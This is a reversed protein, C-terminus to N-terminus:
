APQGAKRRRLRALVSDPLFARRVGVSITGVSRVLAGMITYKYATQGPDLFRVRGRAALQDVGDSRVRLQDDLPRTTAYPLAEGDPLRRRHFDMLTGLLPTVVFEVLFLRGLDNHSGEQSNVTELCRGDALRSLLWTSQQPIGAVTGGGVVALVLRDPSLWFDYRVRVLRGKGDGFSGLPAFGNQRFWTNARAADATLPPTVPRTATTPISRPARYPNGEDLPDETQAEPMAGDAPALAIRSSPGVQMAAFDDLPVYPWVLRRELLFALTTPGFILALLGAITLAAWAWEPVAPNAEIAVIPILWGPISTPPM